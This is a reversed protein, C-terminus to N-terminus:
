VFACAVRDLNSLDKKIHAKFGEGRLLDLVAEGQDFGIELFMGGGKNLRSKAHAAIRRYFGLGDEGGDLANLPEYLKVNPPLSGIASTPIYPPNATIVDFTGISGEFLDGQFFNISAGNLQANRKAAELAGLSLDSAAAYKLCKCMLRLSIAICGSGTCIDLLTSKGKGIIFASAEEVLTETDPRPILVRGDVLFNIGMFEKVGIIYAAPEHRARKMIYSEYIDIAREDLLDSSNSSIIRVKEHGVGKGSVADAAAAMLLAADSSSGSPKLTARGWELLERV